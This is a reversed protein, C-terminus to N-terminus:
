GDADGGSASQISSPAFAEYQPAGDHIDDWAAKSGVFMHKRIGVKLDTDLSGAPIFCAGGKGVLPVPSGCQSCFNPNYIDSHHYSNIDADRQLWELNEAYTAITTTFGGGSAKRCLSCHCMERDTYPGKIRFRIAGCLCSGELTPWEDTM